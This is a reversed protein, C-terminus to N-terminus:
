ALKDRIQPQTHRSARPMLCNPELTVPKCRIDNAVRHPQVEAGYTETIHFFQRDLATDVDGV